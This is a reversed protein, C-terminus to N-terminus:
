KGLIYQVAKQSQSSASIIWKPNSELNKMWGNIYAQSHNDRSKIGTIGELFM